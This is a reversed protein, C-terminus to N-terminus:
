TSRKQSAPSKKAMKRRQERWWGVSWIALAAAAIAVALGIELGRIKGLVSQAASGLGYGILSFCTAWLAGSLANLLLFQLSGIPSMGIIFPTVTRMGYIFRFGLVAAYRHRALLQLVRGSKEMWSKRKKLFAKGKRRGLHFFFQDVALTGLFAILIVWSLKLYGNQAALGALVVVTEGEMLVGLALVWYGHTVILQEISM